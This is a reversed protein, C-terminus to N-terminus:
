PDKSILLWLGGEEIIRSHQSLEVKAVMDEIVQSSIRIKGLRYNLDKSVEGIEKIKKEPTLPGYGGGLLACGGPQLVRHSEKIMEPNLFFFAGRSIILDFHASFPLRKPHAIVFKLKLGFLADITQIIYKDEAVCVGKADPFRTIAEYSIGGSFPGIELIRCPKTPGLRLVWEALHPYIPQWLENIRKVLHAEM